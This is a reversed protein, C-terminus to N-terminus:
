DRLSLQDFVPGDTIAKIVASVPFLDERRDYLRILTIKQLGGDANALLEASERPIVYEVGDGMDVATQKLLEPHSLIGLEVLLQGGGDQGPWSKSQATLWSWTEKRLEIPKDM